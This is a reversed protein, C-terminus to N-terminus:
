PRPIPDVDPRSESRTDEDKSILVPRENGTPELVAHVLRFVTDADFAEAGVMLPARAHELQARFAGVVDIAVRIALVPEFISM